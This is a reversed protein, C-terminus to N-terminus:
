ERRGPASLEDRSELYARLDPICATCIDGCGTRRGVEELSLGEERVLRAIAHFSM